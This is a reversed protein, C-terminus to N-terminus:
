IGEHGGTAFAVILCDQTTATFSLECVGFFEQESIHKTVRRAIQKFGEICSIKKDGMEEKVIREAESSSIDEDVELLCVLGQFVDNESKVNIWFQNLNLRARCNAM